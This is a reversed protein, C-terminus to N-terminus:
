KKNWNKLNVGVYKQYKSVPKPKEIEIKKKINNCTLTIADMFKVYERRDAVPMSKTVIGFTTLVLQTSIAIEVYSALEENEKACYKIYSDRSDNYSLLKKYWYDLKEKEAESATNQALKKLPEVIKRVKIKALDGIEIVTALLTILLFNFEQLTDYAKMCEGAVEGVAKHRAEVAKQKFRSMGFM